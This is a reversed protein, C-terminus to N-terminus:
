NTGSRRWFYLAGCGVFVGALIVPILWEKKDSPASTPTSTPSNKNVM